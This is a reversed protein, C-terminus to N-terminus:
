YVVVGKLVKSFYCRSGFEEVIQQLHPTYISSKIILFEGNEEVTVNEDDMTAMIRDFLQQNRM